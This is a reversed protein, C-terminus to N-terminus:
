GLDFDQKGSDPIQGRAKRGNELGENWKVSEFYAYTDFDSAHTSVIKLIFIHCWEYYGFDLSNVSGLM